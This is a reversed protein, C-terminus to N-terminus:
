SPLFTMLPSTLKPNLASQYLFLIAVLHM